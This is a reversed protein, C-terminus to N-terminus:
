CIADLSTAKVPNFYEPQGEILCEWVDKDLCIEKLGNAEAEALVDFLKSKILRYTLDTQPKFRVKELAELIRSFVYPTCWFSVNSVLAVSGFERPVKNYYIIGDVVGNPELNYDVVKLEIGLHLAEQTTM